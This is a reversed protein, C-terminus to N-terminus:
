GATDDDSGKGNSRFPVVKPLDSFPPELLMRDARARQRSVVDALPEVVECTADIPAREPMLKPREFPLSAAAAKVKNGESSNPNLYVDRLAAAAGGEARLRENEERLKTIEDAQACCLVELREAYAKLDTQPQVDM